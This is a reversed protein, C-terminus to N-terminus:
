KHRHKQTFTVPPLIPFFSPRHAIAAQMEIHGRRLTQAPVFRGFLGWVDTTLLRKAAAEVKAPVFAEKIRQVPFLGFIM